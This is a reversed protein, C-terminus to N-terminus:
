DFVPYSLSPRVMRKAKRANNRCFLFFKAFPKGYSFFLPIMNNDLCIFLCPILLDGEGWVGICSVWVRRCLLKQQVMTGNYCVQAINAIPDVATKDKSGSFRVPAYPCIHRYHLATYTRPKTIGVIEQVAKKNTEAPFEMHASSIRGGGGPPFRRSKIRYEIHGSGGRVPLRPLPTM